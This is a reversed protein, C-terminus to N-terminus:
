PLLSAGRDILSRVRRELEADTLNEVQLPSGKVGSVETRVTERYKEPRNGKLLFIMLTDSQTRARRMAIAELADIAEERASDWAAAFAPDSERADYAYRRVIGAAKAAATVNADKALVRLFVAKWDKTLSKKPTLIEGM